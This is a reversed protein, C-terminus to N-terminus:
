LWGERRYWAAADALGNELDVAAVIGLRDRLRDVRCVFGESALEVYRRSNILAPRGSLVGWMDGFVAAVRTLPLPIRIMTARSGGAARVADLLGRTTVPQPHGVFLTDGNAPRDVAAGIARVLDSVHIFTYAADLRGVLPLIGRAALRFVPLLARDRRGYVVGPRLTTWRLGSIGAVVREEVIRSAEVPVIRLRSAQADARRLDGGCRGARGAVNEIRQMQGPVPDLRVM